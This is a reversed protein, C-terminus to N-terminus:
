EASNGEAVGVFLGSLTRVCGCEQFVHGSALCNGKPIRDKFLGSDSTTRVGAEDVLDKLALPIGHRPGRWKGRQVEAEAERAQVSASEASTIFEIGPNLRDLRELCVETLGVPSVKNRHVLEAAQHLSLKTFDDTPGQSLQRTKKEVEKSAEALSPGIMLSGATEALVTKLFSGRRCTNLFNSMATASNWWISIEHM